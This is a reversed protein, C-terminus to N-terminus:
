YKIGSDWTARTSVLLFVVLFLNLNQVWGVHLFVYKRGLGLNHPSVIPVIIHHNRHIYSTHHIRFTNHSVKPITRASDYYTICITTDMGHMCYISLINYRDSVSLLTINIPRSITFNNHGM